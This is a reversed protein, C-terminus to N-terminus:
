RFSIALAEEAIASPWNFTVTRGLDERSVIALAKKRIISPSRSRAVFILSLAVPTAVPDAWIAPADFSDALTLTSAALAMPSTVLVICSILILTCFTTLLVCNCDDLTDSVEAEM